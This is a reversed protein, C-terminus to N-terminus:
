PMNDPAPSLGTSSSRELEAIVDRSADVGPLSRYARPIADVVNRAANVFMRGRQAPPLRDVTDAALVAGAEFERAAVLGAAEDLTMLAPDGVVYAPYMQDRRLEDAQQVFV